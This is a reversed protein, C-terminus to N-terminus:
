SLRRNLTGRITAVPPIPNCTQKYEQKEMKIVFIYWRLFTLKFKERYIKKMNKRGRCYRM